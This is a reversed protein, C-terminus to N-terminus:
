SIPVVTQPLMPEIILGRGKHLPDTVKFVVVQFINKTMHQPNVGSLPVICFLAQFSSASITEVTLAALELSAVQFTLESAIKELPMFLDVGSGCCSVKTDSIM